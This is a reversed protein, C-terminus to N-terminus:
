LATSKQINEEIVDKFVEIKMRDKYSQVWEDYSLPDRIEHQLQYIAYYAPVAGVDGSEVDNELIIDSIDGQDANQVFDYLGVLTPWDAHEAKNRINTVAMTYDDLTNVDAVANLSFVEPDNLLSDRVEEFSKGQDLMSQAGEMKELALSQAAEAGNELGYEDLGGNNFWVTLAKFSVVGEEEELQTAEVFKPQIFNKNQEFDGEVAIFKSGRLQYDKEESNYFTDELQLWGEQSAAQLAVSQNMIEDMSADIDITELDKLTVFAYLEFDAYYLFEEGVVAIVADEGTKDLVDVDYETSIERSKNYWYIGGVIVLVLFVVLVIQLILKSKKHM